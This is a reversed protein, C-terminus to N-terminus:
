ITFKPQRHYIKCNRTLQELVYCSIKDEGVRLQCLQHFLGSIPPGALSTASSIMLFFGFSSAARSHDVCTLAIINVATAMSGDGFGFIIAYAVLAEYKQALTLLITSVGNLLLVSQLIYFNDLRKISCLFGGM